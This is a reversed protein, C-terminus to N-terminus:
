QRIIQKKCLSVVPKDDSFVSSLSRKCTMSCCALNRSPINIGGEGVMIHNKPIKTYNILSEEGHLVSRAVSFPLQSASIRWPLLRVRQHKYGQFPVCAISEVAAVAIRREVDDVVFLHEFGAVFSEDTEDRGALCCGFGSCSM